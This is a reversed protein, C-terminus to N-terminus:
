QPTIGKLENLLERVICSAEVYNSMCMCEVARREQEPLQAAFRILAEFHEHKAEMAHVGREEAKQLYHLCKELDQMGNKDQHRLVYKSACGVLYHLDVDTAFDWHQYIVKGYHTGAVQRENAKSANVDLPGTPIRRGRKGVGDHPIPDIDQATGNYEVPGREHVPCPGKQDGCTCTNEQTYAAAAKPNCDPCPGLGDHMHMFCRTNGNDRHIAM